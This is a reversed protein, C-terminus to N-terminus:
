EDSNGEKNLLATLEAYDMCIGGYSDVPLGKIMERLETILTAREAGMKEAFKKLIDDGEKIRKNEGELEDVKSWLDNIQCKPCYEFESDDYWYHPTHEECLIM